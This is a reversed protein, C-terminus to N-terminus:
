CPLLRSSGAFLGIVIRLSLVVSCFQEITGYKRKSLLYRPSEPIYFRTILFSTLAPLSCIGAFWHWDVGPFMRCLMTVCQDDSSRDSSLRRTNGPMMRDGNFDRGLMIWAALAVFFSGVQCVVCEISLHMAVEQARVMWFAAIYSLMRGRATTPTIESGLAFVAPVSGGIGVCATMSMGSNACACWQVPPHWFV